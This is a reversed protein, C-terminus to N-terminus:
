PNSGQVWQNLTLQEVLQALPVYKRESKVLYSNEKETIAVYCGRREALNGKRMFQSLRAVAQPPEGCLIDM